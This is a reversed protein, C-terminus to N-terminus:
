GRDAASTRWAGRAMTAKEASICRSRSPKGAKREALDIPVFADRADHALGFSHHLIEEL